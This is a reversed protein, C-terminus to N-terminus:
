LCVSSFQLPFSVCVNKLSLSLSLFPAGISGFWRYAQYIRAMYVVGRALLDLPVPFNFHYLTTNGTRTTNLVSM